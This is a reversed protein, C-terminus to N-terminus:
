EKEGILFLEVVFQDHRYIILFGRPREQVEEKECEKEEEAITEECGNSRLDASRCRFHL